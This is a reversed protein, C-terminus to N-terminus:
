RYHDPYGAFLLRMEPRRKEGESFAITQTTPPPPGELFTETSTLAALAKFGVSHKLYFDNM